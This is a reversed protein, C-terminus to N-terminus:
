LIWTPLASGTSYPWSSISSSGSLPRGVCTQHEGAYQNRVAALDGHADDARQVLQPDLRDGDVRGGVGVRQVHTEGVLRNADARRGGALAVQADRRDDGRRLRAPALRHM